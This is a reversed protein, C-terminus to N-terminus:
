KEGAESYMRELQGAAACLRAIELLRRPRPTDARECLFKSHREIQELLMLEEAELASPQDGALRQVLM